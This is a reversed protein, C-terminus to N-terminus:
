IGLRALSLFWRVSAKAQKQITAIETDKKKLSGKLEKLQDEQKSNDALVQKMDIKDDDGSMEKFKKIAKELAEKEEM